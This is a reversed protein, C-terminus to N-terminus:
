ECLQPADMVRHVSMTVTIKNHDLDGSSNFSLSPPQDQRDLGNLCLGVIWPRGIILHEDYESGHGFFYRAAERGQAFFCLAAGRGVVGVVFEGGLWGLEQVGLSVPWVRQWAAVPRNATSVGGDCARGQRAPGIRRRSAVTERGARRRSAAARGAQRRSAVARGGGRCRRWVSQGDGVGCAGARGLQAAAAAHGREQVASGSRYQIAAVRGARRWSPAAM